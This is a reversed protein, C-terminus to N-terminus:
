PPGTFSSLDAPPDRHPLPTLLFSVIGSDQHRLSAPTKKKRSIVRSHAGSARASPCGGWSPGPEQARAGRRRWCTGHGTRSEVRLKRRPTTQATPSTTTTRLQNSKCSVCGTGTLDTPSKVDSSSQPEHRSSICFLTQFNCVPPLVQLFSACVREYYYSQYSDTLLM